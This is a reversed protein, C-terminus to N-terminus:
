VDAALEQLDILWALRDIISKALDLAEDHRADQSEEDENPLPPLLNGILTVLGEDIRRLRDASM